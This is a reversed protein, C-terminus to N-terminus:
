WISNFIYQIPRSHFFIFLRSRILLQYRASRVHVVAPWKSRADRRGNVVMVLDTAGLLVGVLYAGTKLRMGIM